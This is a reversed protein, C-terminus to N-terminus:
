LIRRVKTTSRVYDLIKQDFTNKRNIETFIPIYFVSETWSNATPLRMYDKETTLICKEKALNNFVGQIEIYDKKRFSYHDPYSFHVLRSCKKKLFEVYPKSNAIGTILLVQKKRLTSIPVKKEFRNMLYDAYQIFSFFVEQKERCNLREIIKNELSEDLDDPCKTVIIVDARKAQSKHERLRGKPLLADDLYLHNFDTLLISLGAKIQRHQFADDLLVVESANTKLLEKIGRVRNEDVAVKIQSGFKKFYQLPEDGIDQATSHVNALIFGKTHRAYGRSLTALKYREKLLRIIYETHPTKGTGGCSLNGICIIPLSFSTSSLWKRDYFYNRLHIVGGYLQSLIHFFCNPTKAKKLLRKILHYM